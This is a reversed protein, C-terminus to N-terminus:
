KRKAGFRLLFDSIDISAQIHNMKEELNENMAMLLANVILM